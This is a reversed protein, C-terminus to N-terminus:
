GPPYVRSAGPLFIYDSSDAGREFAVVFFDENGNRLFQERVQLQLVRASERDSDKLAQIDVPITVRRVEQSPAWLSEISSRPRGIWWEAVARDSDLGKQAMGTTEGYLNPYYRRIIVGLKEINFYANKSELPDFTWEILHIGRKLAHDRQAVKLQTGIGADRHEGTVALMHSHWYPVGNRVGPIASLFGVLTEEEYAGLILGGVHHAVVFLRIPMIDIDAWGFGDRQLDICAEFEPLSTLERINM